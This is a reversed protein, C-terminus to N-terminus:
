QEQDLECEEFASPLVVHGRIAPDYAGLKLVQAAERPAWDPLDMTIGVPVSWEFGFRSYYRPNGQLIVLPERRAEAEASVARMLASGVGSRQHEPAVALPALNAIPRREDGDDIWATTIMVHGVVREDIEAMLSLEPIFCPSARLLEVLLAESRQGFAAEVVATIAPADRPQEPRISIQM